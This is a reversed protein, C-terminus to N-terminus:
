NKYWVLTPRMYRTPFRKRRKQKEPLTVAYEKIRGPVSSFECHLRTHGPKEKNSPKQCVNLKKLPHFAVWPTLLSQERKWPVQGNWGRDRYCQHATHAHGMKSQQYQSSTKKKGSWDKWLNIFVISLKLFIFAKLKM